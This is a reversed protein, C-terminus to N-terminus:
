EGKLTEVKMKSAGKVFGLNGGTSRLLWSYVLVRMAREKIQESFNCFESFLTVQNNFFFFFVSCLGPSFIALTFCLLFPLNAM